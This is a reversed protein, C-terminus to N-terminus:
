VNPTNGNTAVQACFPMKIIGSLGKVNVAHINLHQSRRELVQIQQSIVPLYYIERWIFGAQERPWTNCRCSFFRKVRSKFRLDTPWRSDIPVHLSFLHGDCVVRPTNLERVNYRESIALYDVFLALLSAQLWFIASRYKGHGAAM